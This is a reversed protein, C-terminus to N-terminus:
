FPTMETFHGERDSLTMPKPAMGYDVYSKRNIKWHLQRM